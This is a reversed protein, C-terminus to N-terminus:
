VLQVSECRAKPFPCRIMSSTKSVTSTGLLARSTERNTTMPPTFRRPASTLVVSGLRYLVTPMSSTTPVKVLTGPLSLLDVPILLVPM